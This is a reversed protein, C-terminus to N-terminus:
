LFVPTTSDFLAEGVTVPEAVAPWSVGPTLENTIPLMSVRGVVIVAVVPLL